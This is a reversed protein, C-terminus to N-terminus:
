VLSRLFDRFFVDLPEPLSKAIRESLRTQTKAKTKHKQPPDNFFFYREVNPVVVFCGGLSEM